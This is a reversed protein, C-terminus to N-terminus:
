TQSILQTHSSCYRNTWRMIVDHSGAIDRQVERCSRETSKRLQVCNNLELDCMGVLTNINKRQDSITSLATDLTRNCYYAPVVMCHSPAEVLRQRVDATRVFHALAATYIRSIIDFAMAIRSIRDCLDFESEWAFLQAQISPPVAAMIVTLIFRESMPFMAHNM